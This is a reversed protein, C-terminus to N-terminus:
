YTPLCDFTIKALDLKLTADSSIVFICLSGYGLCKVKLISCFIDVYSMGCGM